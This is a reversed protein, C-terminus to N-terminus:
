DPPSTSFPFPGAEAVHVKLGTLSEFYRAHSELIALLPPHRLSSPHLAGALQRTHEICREILASVEEAAEQGADSHGIMSKLRKLALASAFLDQAIGEHLTITVALREEERASELRQALERVRSYAQHLETIDSVLVFFGRSM